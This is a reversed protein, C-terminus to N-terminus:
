KRSRQGAYYAESLWFTGWGQVARGAVKAGKVGPTDEKHIRLAQCGSGAAAIVVILIVVRPSKKM